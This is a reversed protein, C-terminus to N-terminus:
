RTSRPQRLEDGVTRGGRIARDTEIVDSGSYWVDKAHNKALRPLDRGDLQELIHEFEHAIWEGRYSGPGIAVAAVILGSQYRRFTTRARDSTQCLKVDVSVGVVVSQTEAIRQYQARFTPSRRLLDEVESKLESVVQISTASALTGERKHDADNSAFVDTVILALLALTFACPRITSMISGPSLRDEWLLIM